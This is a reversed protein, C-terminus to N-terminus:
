SGHLRVETTLAPGNARHGGAKHRYKENDAPDPRQCARFTRDSM